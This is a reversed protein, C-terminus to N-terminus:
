FDTLLQKDNKSLWYDIRRRHLLDVLSWAGACLNKVPISNIVSFSDHNIALIM